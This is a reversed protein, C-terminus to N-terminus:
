RYCSVLYSVICVTSKHDFWFFKYFHHLLLEPELGFLRLGNLQACILECLPDGDPLFDFGQLACYLFILSLMKKKSMSEKRATDAMVFDCDSGNM